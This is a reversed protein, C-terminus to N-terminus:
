YPYIDIESDIDSIFKELAINSPSIIVHSFEEPVAMIISILEGRKNFIGAGSSGFTAPVTTLCSNEDCGGLNGKFVLRIGPGAIGLPAAVSYVEEGVQWKKALRISYFDDSKLKPGMLLCLDNEIDARIVFLPRPRDGAFGFIAEDHLFTKEESICFHAATLVFVSSSDAYLVLGSATSAVLPECPGPLFECVDPSIPTAEKLMFVFNKSGKKYKRDIKSAELILNNEIPGPIPPLHSKLSMCGAVILTIIFSYVIVGRFEKIKKFM